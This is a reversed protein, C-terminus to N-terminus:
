FISEAEKEKEGGEPIDSIHINAKNFTDWLDM